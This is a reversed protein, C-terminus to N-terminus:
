TFDGAVMVLEYIVWQYLKGAGSTSKLEITIIHDVGTTDVLACQATLTGRGAQGANGTNNNVGDNARLQVRTDEVDAVLELAVVDAGIRESLDGTADQYITTSTETKIPITDADFPSDNAVVQTRYAYAHNGMSVLGRIGMSVDGVADGSLIPRGRRLYLPRTSTKATPLNIAM